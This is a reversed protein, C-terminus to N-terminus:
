RRRHRGANQLNPRHLATFPHRSRKLLIVHHQHHRQDPRPPNADIPRRSASRRRLFLARRHQPRTTRTFSFPIPDCKPDLIPFLPPLQRRHAPVASSTRHAIAIPDPSIPHFPPTCISPRARSSSSFASPTWFLLHDTCAPAPMPPARPLWPPARAPAVRRPPRPALCCLVPLAAALCHTARPHPSHCLVARRHGAHCRHRPTSCRRCPACPCAAPSTASRPSTLVPTPLPPASALAVRARACLPAPAASAACM